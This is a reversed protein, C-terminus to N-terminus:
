LYTYEYVLINTYMIIYVFVSISHLYVDHMSEWDIQVFWAVDDDRVHYKQM